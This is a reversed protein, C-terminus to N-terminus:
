HRARYLDLVARSKAVLERDYCGENDLIYHVWTLTAMDDINEPNSVSMPLKPGNTRVVTCDIVAAQGPTPGDGYGCGTATAVAFTALLAVRALLRM